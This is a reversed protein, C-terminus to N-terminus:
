KISREINSEPNSADFDKFPVIYIYKIKDCSGSKAYRNSIYHALAWYVGNNSAMVPTGEPLDFSFKEWDKCERSPFLTPETNPYNLFYIGNDYFTQERDFCDKVTIKLYKRNPSEVMNTGLLIVDGFLPSYLKTGKPLIRINKAEM